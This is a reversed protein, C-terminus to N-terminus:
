KQTRRPLVSLIFTDLVNARSIATLIIDTLEVVSDDPLLAISMWTSDAGVDLGVSLYSSVSDILSLLRQYHILFMREPLYSVFAQLFATLGPFCSVAM